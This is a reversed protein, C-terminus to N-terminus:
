HRPAAAGPRRHNARARRPVRDRDRPPHRRHVAAHEAGVPARVADVLLLRHPALHPQTQPQTLSIPHLPSPSPGQM